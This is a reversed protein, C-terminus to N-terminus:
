YLLLLIAAINSLIRIVSETNNVASRNEYNSESMDHLAVLVGGVEWIKM